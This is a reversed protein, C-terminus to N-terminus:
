QRPMAPPLAAVTVWGPAARVVRDVSNAIVSSSGSQPNLGPELVMSITRAADITITDRPSRSISELAVHGTFACEFWPADDVTATYRQVFGASEGAAVRLERADHEREAFIPDIQRDIRSISVGLADATVHMSQPFGIHGHIEGAADRRAFQERSFGIGLRHLVTGSFGSLDVTRDVRIGRVEETVGTLTLVLSDFIFGPNLGAGLITVGHEKALEDLRTAVGRDVAWPDACEEASVIVNSGADVAARIDDAVDALFSTTAIVVVEAGSDLARERDARTYPGDVEYRTRARLIRAVQTGLQGAGYLTVTTAGM